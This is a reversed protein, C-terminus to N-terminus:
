VHYIKKNYFTLCVMLLKNRKTVDNTSQNVRQEESIVAGLIKSHLIIHCPVALTMVRYIKISSLHFFSAFLHVKM